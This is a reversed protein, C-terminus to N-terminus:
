KGRYKGIAEGLVDYLEAPIIPKSLHRNMGAEIAEQKDTDFANATLAIIPIDKADNRSLNRIIRTAEIGDINPMRIDMLVIDFYGDESDKFINVGIKGDEACVVKIGKNTLLRVALERNLREPMSIRLNINKNVASQAVANIIGELVENASVVEPNLVMTGSEIKSM